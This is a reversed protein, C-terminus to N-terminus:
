SYGKKDINDTAPRADYFPMMPYSWLMSSVICGSLNALPLYCFSSCVGTGVPLLLPLSWVCRAVFFLTKPFIIINGFPDLESILATGMLIEGRFGGIAPLAAICPGTWLCSLSKEMWWRHWVSGHKQTEHRKAHPKIVATYEIQYLQAHVSVARTLDQNVAVVQCFFM